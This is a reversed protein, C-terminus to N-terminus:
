VEIEAGERAIFFETESKGSTRKAFQEELTSLQKDTRQPDHHFLAVREVRAKHTANIVFEFSSHGWGLRSSLYEEHTYQSDHVVLHTGQYFRLLKENEERAARDGEEAAFADYAPDDPDTPFVNRFPETDYATCFVRGEYEFRYGLCLIPHNLYKTTLQIGDGLDMTCEKLPFYTIAAALESHKVPFYRYSLQDGVIRDLGEDEYTVPGYIRIKTGPIYIPTFFPFGMIHDWHTHTIFISTDIPGKPLDHQMLYNGLARIGSGADIIILKEEDGFRLELCATNGGYEVTTPGPCPISGRVGWFRVKMMPDSRM